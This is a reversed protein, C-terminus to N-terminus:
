SYGCHNWLSVESAGSKLNGQFHFSVYFFSIHIYRRKNTLKMKETSISVAEASQPQQLSLLFLVLTISSGCSGFRTLILHCKETNAKATHPCSIDRRNKHSGLLNQGSSISNRPRNNSALDDLLQLVLDLCNLSINIM